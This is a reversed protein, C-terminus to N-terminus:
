TGGYVKVSMSKREQLITCSNDIIVAMYLEAATFEELYVMLMCKSTGAINIYYVSDLFSSITSIQMEEKVNEEFPQIEMKM